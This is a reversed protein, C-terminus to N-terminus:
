VVVPSTQQTLNGISERLPNPFRTIFVSPDWGVGPCPYLQAHRLQPLVYHIIGNLAPLLLSPSALCLVAMTFKMTMSVGWVNVCMHTKTPNGSHFSLTIFLLQVTHSACLAGVSLFLWRRQYM